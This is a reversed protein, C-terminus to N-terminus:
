LEQIALDNKTDKIATQEEATEADGEKEGHSNIDEIIPEPADAISGLSQIDELRM